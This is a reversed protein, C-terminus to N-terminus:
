NNQFNLFRSMQAYLNEKNKKYSLDLKYENIIKIQLEFWLNWNLESINNYIYCGLEGPFPAYKLGRLYKKEKLCFIM